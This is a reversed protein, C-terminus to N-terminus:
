TAMSTSSFTIPRPTAATTSTLLIWPAVHIEMTMLWRPPSPHFQDVIGLGYIFQVVTGGGGVVVDVAQAIFLVIAKGSM